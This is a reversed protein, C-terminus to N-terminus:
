KASDRNILVQETNALLAIAKITSFTSQNPFLTNYNDRLGTEADISLHQYKILLKGALKKVSDPNLGGAVAVSVNPLKEYCSEIFPELHDANLPIGQGASGDLLIDTVFESYPELKKVFEASSLETLHENTAQLILRSIKSSKKLKELVTQYQEIHWPLRNLQFGYVRNLIELRSDYELDSDATAAFNNKEYLSLAFMGISVPSTDESNLHILLEDASQNYFPMKLKNGVPYWNEGYKNEINKLQTKDSVQIGFITNYGLKKLNRAPLSGAVLNIDQSNTAGNLSIYPKSKLSNM